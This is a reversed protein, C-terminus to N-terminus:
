SYSASPFPEGFLLMILRGVQIAALYLLLGELCAIPLVRRSLVGDFYCWLVAFIFTLLNLKLNAIPDDVLALYLLGGLLIARLILDRAAHFGRSGPGLRDIARQLARHLQRRM